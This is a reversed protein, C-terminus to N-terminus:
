GAAFFSCLGVYKALNALLGEAIHLSSPQNPVLLSVLVLCHRMNCLSWMGARKGDELGETKLVVLACLVVYM